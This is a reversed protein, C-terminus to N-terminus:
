NNWVEFTSLFSQHLAGVFFFKSTGTWSRLFPEGPTGLLQQQKGFVLLLFEEGLDNPLLPEASTSNLRCRPPQSQRFSRNSEAEEERRREKLGLTRRMHVAKWRQKVTEILKGLRRCSSEVSLEVSEPSPTLHSFSVNTEIQIPDCYNIRFGQDKPPSEPFVISINPHILQILSSSYQVKQLRM